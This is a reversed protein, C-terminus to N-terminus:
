LRGGGTGIRLWSWGTGVVGEWKRFIWRLIIRGDVVPVGLHDREKLNEGGFGQIRREEGGYPSSAGGM